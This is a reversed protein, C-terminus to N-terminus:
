ALEIESGAILWRAQVHKVMEVMNERSFSSM